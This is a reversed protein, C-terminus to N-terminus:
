LIVSDTTLLETAAAQTTFETAMVPYGEIEKPNVEGNECEPSLVCQEIHIENNIINLNTITKM